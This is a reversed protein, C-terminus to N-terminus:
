NIKNAKISESAKSKISAFNNIIETMIYQLKKDDNCNNLNYRRYCKTNIAAAANADRFSEPFISLPHYTFETLADYDGNKIVNDDVIRYDKVYIRGDSARVMLTDRVEPFDEFDNLTTCVYIDIIDKAAIYTTTETKTM